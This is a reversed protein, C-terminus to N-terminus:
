RARGLVCRQRQRRKAHRRGLRETIRHATVNGAGNINKSRLELVASVIRTGTPLSSLEFRLLSRRKETDGSVELEVDAGFNEDPKQEDITTDKGEAAAPKLVVTTAAQYVPADAAHLTRMAGGALAGTATIAVPSGFNKNYSVSYAHDGFPVDVLDAYASCAGTSSAKWTAHRLGAEAVLSAANVELERAGVTLASANERNLVLIVSALLTLLALVALLIFGRQSSTSTM